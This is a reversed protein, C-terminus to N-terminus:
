PPWGEQRWAMDWFMYEYRASLEFLKEARQRTAADLSRAEEEMMVLVLRVSAGFEESAYQDIWRQYDPDKSGRKKLHKGVEWYIWYCPLVAALGEAFPRQTVTAILHNTYALNTPAMGAPPRGTGLLSEHLKREVELAEVAHRNLALSWDERPAKAALLSLARSFGGLYLADQALYYDFRARPLTGDALGALFPHELTRRFIPEISDWLRSTFDGAWAPVTLLVAWVVRM